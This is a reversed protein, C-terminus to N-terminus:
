CRLFPANNPQQLNNKTYLSNLIVFERQCIALCCAVVKLDLAYEISLSSFTMHPSSQSTSYKAFLEVLIDNPFSIWSMYSGFGFACLIIWCMTCVNIPGGYLQVQVHHINDFTAMSLKYNSCISYPTIQMKLFHYTKSKRIKYFGIKYIFWTTM